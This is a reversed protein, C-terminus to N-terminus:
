NFYAFPSDRRPFVWPALCFSPNSNFNSSPWAKQAAADANPDAKLILESNFLGAVLHCVFFHWGFLAGFLFIM